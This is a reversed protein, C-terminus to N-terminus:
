HQIRLGKPYHNKITSNVAKGGGLAIGEARVVTWGNECEAEFSEGKLYADLRTDDLALDIKRKFLEGLASFLHHHPQFYGRRVEGLTVGCSYSLRDPVPIEPNIYVVADKFKRVYDPNYESLTDDLFECVCKMEDKDLPKLASKVDCEEYEDGRRKLVACFQGEGKANHPYFRRYADNGIGSVTYPVIRESPYVLEFDDNDALFANVQEENEEPAFTCTSYILYGGGRLARSASQLIGRQREACMKVNDISWDKVAVEEKRFMGEGSCPADVIVLDFYYPFLQAVAGVEASTVAYNKMGMREFNGSMIRARPTNIENSIIFGDDGLFSAAQLSKGGPASCTDFIKWNKKIDLSAVPIMASPEQVYILGAHHLPHAGIKDYSFYYSDNAYEIPSIPFSFLSSVDGKKKLPNVRFARPSDKELEKLYRKLGEEGLLKKMRDIFVESLM